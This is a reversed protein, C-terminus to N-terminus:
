QVKTKLFLVVCMIAPSITSIWNWWFCLFFSKLCVPSKHLFGDFRLKVNKEKIKKGNKKQRKYIYKLLVNIISGKEIAVVKM